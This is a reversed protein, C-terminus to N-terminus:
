HGTTIEWDTIQPGQGKEYCRSDGLINDKLDNKTGLLNKRLKRRALNFLSLEKLRVKCIMDELDRIM